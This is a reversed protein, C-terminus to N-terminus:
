IEKFSALYEKPDDCVMAGSMVCVGKAGASIVQGANEGNVGGIAYVPAKVSECVQKLFELGRGPLGKKCATDFVHGATVYTCGLSEAEVAEEASHCSVGLTTFGRRKDPDLERLVHLPLHLSTVGLEAAVDGFSHLICPTGYRGCIELVAKALSRYEDATLDKERLIIGEPQAKALKDIRELFDEKCLLRNTVCLVRKCM